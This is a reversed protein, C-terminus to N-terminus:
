AKKASEFSDICEQCVIVRKPGTCLYHRLGSIDLKGAHMLPGELNMVQGVPIREKTEDDELILNLSM